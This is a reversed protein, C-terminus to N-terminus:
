KAEEALLANLQENATKAAAAIDKGTIAATIVNGILDRAKGVNIVLPRDAPSGVKGSELAVTVWDTPWAKKGEDSEWVSTRASPVGTSQIKTTVEKSTAWKIFEWAADQNKSSKAISIGWSTVSYPLAGKDGAPFMAFGVKDGITSKDPATVNKYLSNADVWMAAKGQAFLAAAQPWEMNLVGPPGYNKLLNGYIGFAKIAEPSDMVFKGDKIFEGGTSYLYSSFQTVAPNGKGRMVIGYIGQDPNHLKKAAAELGAITKPPQLNAAQFLDKRYYVIEQETVLPIGTLHGNVTETQMPGQFYDSAGYEAPTKQSDNLFTNLDAYWGNKEFLKAEQLPRQMFVDVTGAGSTLEVTLKQTLQNETISEMQVKIGTKSEFDPILTKLTETWPHNAALFRITTGAFPKDSNSTGQPAQTAGGCGTLAVSGLIAVLMILAWSRQFRKM